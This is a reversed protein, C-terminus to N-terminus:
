TAAKKKSELSEPLVDLDDLYPQVSAESPMRWDGRPSFSVSGVKPGAPMFVRKYQNRFFAKFFHKMWHVMEEFTYDEKFAEYQYRLINVPSMGYRMFHFATFEHLEYPGNLEETDHDDELLEPSVRTEVIDDLIAQVEPENQFEIESTWKVLHRILTKAVDNNVNYHSEHDAMFTMWGTAAESFDGTGLTLGKECSISHLVKTRVWAQVNQLVLKNPDLDNDKDYGIQEFIQNCIPKIDVEMFTAGLAEILQCANTYTRDTTGFGPMTVGIIEDRSVGRLDCTKAAVIAAHTSDLGGSIGIVMKQKGTPLCELRRALSNAQMSFVEYCREDRKNPDSPVFPHKDILRRVSLYVRHKSDDRYEHGVDVVVERFDNQYTEANAGFSGQMSRETLLMGIDIDTVVFHSDQRFREGQALLYGREYIFQSGDWALDDTSEGYGAATYLVAAIGQASLSEILKHRYENKEITINSASLNALVTAGNLVAMRSPSVPVWSDECIEIHLVFNPYEQSRVLIDNGIPVNKNGLLDVEKLKCASAKKFHREEYFERGVALYSKPVISLIKGNETYHGDKQGTAITVACNFLLSGLRLPMGVTFIMRTDCLRKMLYELADQAGALMTETYVLDGISYGTLGLEPCLVYYAGANYAERIIGAHEIANRKPDGLHVRPVATAVRVLEHNRIDLFDESKMKLNNDAFRATRWLIPMRRDVM